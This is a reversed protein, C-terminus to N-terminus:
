AAAEHDEAVAEAGDAPDDHPVPKASRTRAAKPAAAARVRSRSPTPAAAAALEAAEAGERVLRKLEKNQERLRSVARELKVLQVELEAKNLKPAALPAKRSTALRAATRTTRTPEAPVRNKSGPPRGRKPKPIIGTSKLLKTSM